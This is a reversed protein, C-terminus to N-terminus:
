ISRAQTSSCRSRSTTLTAPGDSALTLYGPRARAAEILDALTRYPSANNVVILPPSHALYCIPEFSKVPDYNLKRLHPNIVLTSDAILVTRGDPAARSVAEAGIVSGAGPRNEILMALGQARGIQEALLRALVDAGGGPAYPVVIKITRSTQSWAGHGSMTLSLVTVAAAVGARHLFQRRSINM